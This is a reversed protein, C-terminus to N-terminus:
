QATAARLHLRANENLLSMRDAGNIIGADGIVANAWPYADNQCFDDGLLFCMCILDFLDSDSEIKLQNALKLQLEIRDFLHEDDLSSTQKPFYGRAFASLTQLLQYQQESSDVQSSNNIRM